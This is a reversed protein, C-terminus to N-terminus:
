SLLFSCVLAQTQIPRVRGKTTCFRRLEKNDEGRVSMQVFPRRKVSDCFLLPQCPGRHTM